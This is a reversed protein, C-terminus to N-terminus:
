SNLVRETPENTGKDYSMIQLQIELMPDDLINEARSSDAMKGLYGPKKKQVIINSVLTKDRATSTSVLINSGEALLALLYTYIM